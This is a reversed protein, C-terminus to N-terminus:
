SGEFRTQDVTMPAERPVYSPSLFLHITRASYYSSQTDVDVITQLHLGRLWGYVTSSTWPLPQDFTLRRLFLLSLYMQAQAPTLDVSGQDARCALSGATPDALFTVPHDRQLEGYEAPTPCTLTSSVAPRASSPPPGCPPLDPLSM